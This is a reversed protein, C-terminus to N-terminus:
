ESLLADLTVACPAPVFLPQQGEMSEPLARQAQHYLQALDIKQRMSEAFRRKAQQRFDIADARWSPADRHPPWGEAKLMHRLRPSCLSSRTLQSRGVDEIEEAVNTLDIEADNVLEGAARRRLLAAQHASWLLIDDDYLDSV